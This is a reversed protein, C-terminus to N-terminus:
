STYQLLELTLLAEERDSSPIIYLFQKVITFHIHQAPLLMAVPLAEQKPCTSPLLWVLFGGMLVAPQQPNANPECVM